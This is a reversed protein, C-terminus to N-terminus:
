HHLFLIDASGSCGLVSIVVVTVSYLLGKSKVLGHSLRTSVVLNKKKRKQGGRITTKSTVYFRLSITIFRQLPDLEYLILPLRRHPITRKLQHPRSSTSQDVVTRRESNHVKSRYYGETFFSYPRCTISITKM